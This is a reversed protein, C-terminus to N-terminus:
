TDSCRLCFLVFVVGCIQIKHKTNDVQETSSLLLCACCRHTGNQTRVDSGRQFDGAISLAM